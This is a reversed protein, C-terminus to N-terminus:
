SLAVPAYALCIVFVELLNRRGIQRFVSFM